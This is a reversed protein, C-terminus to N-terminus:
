SLPDAPPPSSLVSIISLHTPLSSPPHLILFPPKVKIYSCRITTFLPHSHAAPTMVIKPQTM